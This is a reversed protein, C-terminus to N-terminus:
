AREMPYILGIIARVQDMTRAISASEDLPMLASERRGGRLCAMVEAAEYQYGAPHSVSLPEQESASLAASSAQWFTPIHISGDTGRICAEQPTNARVACSLLALAGDEHTALDFLEKIAERNVGNGRRYNGMFSEAVTGAKAALEVESNAM